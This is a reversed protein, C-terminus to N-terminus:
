CALWIVRELVWRWEIADVLERWSKVTCGGGHKQAVRQATGLLSELENSEATIIHDLRERPWYM